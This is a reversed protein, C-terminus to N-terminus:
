SYLVKLLFVYANFGLWLFEELHWSRQNKKFNWRLLEAMNLRCVDLNNLRQKCSSYKFKVRVFRMIHRCSVVIVRVACPWKIAVNLFACAHSNSLKQAFVYHCLAWTIKEFLPGREKFSITTLSQNNDHWIEIVSIEVDEETFVSFELGNSFKYSLNDM